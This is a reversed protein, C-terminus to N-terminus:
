RNKRRVEDAGEIVQEFDVSNIAAQVVEEGDNSTKSHDCKGMFKWPPEKSHDSDGGLQFMDTESNERDLAEVVEADFYKPDIDQVGEAVPIEM